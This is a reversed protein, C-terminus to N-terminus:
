EVGNTRRYDRWFGLMIRLAIKICDFNNRAMEIRKEIDYFDFV